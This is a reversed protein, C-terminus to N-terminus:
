SNFKDDASDQKYDDSRKFTTINTAIGKTKHYKESLDKLKNIEGRKYEELAEKFENENIFELGLNLEQSASSTAMDNYEELINKYQDHYPSKENAVQEALFKFFALDENDAYANEAAIKEEYAQQKAKEVETDVSEALETSNAYKSVKEDVMLKRLQENIANQVDAEPSTLDALAKQDADKISSGQSMYFERLRGRKEEVSMTALSSTTIEGEIESKKQNILTQRRQMKIQEINQDFDNYAQSTRDREAALQTMTTKKGTKIDTIEVRKDILKKAAFDNASKITSSLHEAASISRENVQAKTEFGMNKKFATSKRDMWDGFTNPDNEGKGSTIRWQELKSNRAAQNKRVEGMNKIFGGKKSGTGFGRAAGSIFGATRSGFGKGGAIGMAGGLLAGGLGGAVYGPARKLTSYAFKGGLMNESRKKLSLGFDGSAKTVSKPLLEQILDPAKKAFTLIGLILFVTIWKSALGAEFKSIIDFGDGLVLTCLMMAFNIIIIRLFLDAYTVTCQKVWKSFMNDKSPALYCMIPIPAIIQLYILQVYRTGLSICYMLIIWWIFIGVAVALIGNFDITYEQGKLKSNIEKKEVLCGNNLNHLNGYDYLEGYIFGEKGTYLETCDTGATEMKGNKDVKTPEYFNIFLEAALYNGETTDDPVVNVSIISEIINAKVIKNQIKFAYEFLNPTIALLVLSILIKQIIKSPNKEKDSMSDPNVLSEILWFTVRFVMFIGIILSIKNYIVKLESVYVQTGLNKFIDYLSAIGPYVIECISAYLGRLANNIMDLVDPLGWLFWM